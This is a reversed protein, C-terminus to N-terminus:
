NKKEKKTNSAGNNGNTTNKVVYFEQSVGKPLNVGGNVLEVMSNNGLPVRIEGMGQTTAVRQLQEMTVTQVPSIGDTSGVLGFSSGSTSGQPMIGQVLTNNQALTQVQQPLVVPAVVIIPAPSTVTTSNVITTVVNNVQNQVVPTAPAPTPDVTPAIAVGPDITAVPNLVWITTDGTNFQPFMKTLTNDTTIDWAAEGLETTYTALSNMQATTKGVNSDDDVLTPNKTKNYFSANVTTTGYGQDENLGVLGGVNTTGTVAGSSYTNTITSGSTGGVLGGVSDVGTVNGVAYSNIITTPSDLMYGVLGGVYNNGAVNGKAYSTEIHSYGAEGVLGGVYDVGVASVEGTAYSRSLTSGEAYGMLGGIYQASSAYTATVKGSAYANSISGQYDYGVLGGVNQGDNSTVAGTAHVTNIVASENYGILGGVNSANDANVANTAYSNSIKAGDTGSNGNTNYGVLGGINQVSQANLATVQGTAHTNTITGLAVDKSYTMEFSYGFHINDNTTSYSNSVIGVYGPHAAEFATIAAAATTTDASLANLAEEQNSYIPEVSVTPSYTMTEQWGANYGILGGIYQGNSVTVSGTAYSSSINGGSNYGILGGVYSAGTGDLNGTAYSDSIAGLVINKQYSMNLNYTYKGSNTDLTVARGDNTLSYGPHASEFATIAANMAATATDATDYLTNSNVPSISISSTEGQNYGVLGGVYQNTGTVNGTAYSASINGYDNEGVLGGVYGSGTVAGTAYSNTISLGAGNNSVYGVLGGINSVNPANVAGTAHSNSIVGFDVGIKSLQFDMGYYQGSRLWSNDQLIYGQTLLSQVDARALYATKATDYASALTSDDTGYIYKQISIRNDNNNEGELYGVLGGFNQGSSTNVADIGVSSAVSDMNTYSAYGVAGGVYGAYDTALAITGSVTANSITDNDSDGILGGIYGAYGNQHTTDSANITINGSRMLGSYISGYSYGVLGGIDEVDYGTTTINNTASLTTFVVGETDGVLGGVYGIYSRNNNSDLVTTTISIAGTASANTLSSSGYFNKASFYGILGGIDEFDLRNHNNPTTDTVSTLTAAVSSSVNGIVINDGYAQGVLGGIEYGGVTQGWGNNSDYTNATLNMTITGASSAHSIVSNDMAYGVLGGINYYGIDNLKNWATDFTNTVSYNFGTVSTNIITAGDSYSGENANRPNNDLVFTAGRMLGAVGGINQYGNLTVGAITLNEITGGILRGVFGINANYDQDVNLGTITKSNGDFTGMLAPLYWGTVGQMGSTLTINNALKFKNAPNYALGLMDKLNQTTGVSYFGSGDATGLYTAASLDVKNGALWDAAQGSYIGGYTIVGTNGNISTDDLKYFSNTITAPKPSRNYSDGLYGVLGGADRMASITNTEAYSNTLSSGYELSGVVGGAKDAGGATITSGAVYANDIISNNSVYGAIGGVYGGATAVITSSTVANNKIIVGDYAGGVIGGVNWGQDSTVTSGTVINNYITPSSIPNNSNNDFMGRATGVLAAISSPQNNDIIQTNHITANSLRINSVSAAGAISGFLGASFEGGGQYYAYNGSVVLGSITNGLGNFVGQFDRSYDRGDNSAIYGIPTFGSGADVYAINGGLAYHGTVTATSADASLQELDAQTRIITYPNSNITLSSSDNLIIKGVYDAKGANMGMTLANVYNLELGATGNVTIAANVNIDHGASLTLINSSTAGYSIVDNVNIDHTAALTLSSGGGDLDDLYTSITAGSISSGSVDAGGSSQITIDVPDILWSKAKIITGDAIGLKTGSTEIFGGRADVTGSINTTGGHAYLVIKGNENGLSKAEIVGTNNVMGDLITNLAQTTLYVQGGDAKILGKNEVLANLTGQDITLKVLSNGNLNLSIKEGSAMQVNGMTAVITGANQVTKGMMAVYGSNNATITGMNIISNQSNGEFVYNGAQFNADTINLTSAVLGGVNIQSGNAFLVGNPNILFVQGNANMAGEILSQSIGIVRNLTVSQASPQVFNVTESPAISFSNWNISAKNTSQNITTISGNQSIAASGSTVQGGTPSAFSMTSGAILASVVLSIKGGKLIRFRSSFDPTYKM